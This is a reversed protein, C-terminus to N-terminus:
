GEQVKVVVKVVYNAQNTQLEFSGKWYEVRKRVILLEENLENKEIASAEDMLFVVEIQHDRFAIEINCARVDKRVVLSELVDHCVQYLFADLEVKLETAIGKVELNIEKQHEDNIKRILSRLTALFGLDELMLPYIEFSLNRVKGLIGDMVVEIEQLSSQVQPDDPLNRMMKIRLLLSYISQAIDHYLEDSFRQKEAATIKMMEKLEYQIPDGTNEIQIHELENAMQKFINSLEESYSQITDILQKNLSNKM